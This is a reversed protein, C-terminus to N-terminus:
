IELPPLSKDICMFGTCEEQSALAQIMVSLATLSTVEGHENVVLIPDEQTSYSRHPTEIWALQWPKLAHQVRLADM